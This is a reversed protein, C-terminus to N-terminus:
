FTENTMQRKPDEKAAHAKPPPQYPNTAYLIRDRIEEVELEYCNFGSIREDKPIINLNPSKYFNRSYCNVAPRTRHPILTKTM